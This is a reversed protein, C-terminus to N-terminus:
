KPKIEKQNIGKLFPLGILLWTGGDATLTPGKSINPSYDFPACEIWLIVASTIKIRKGPYNLSISLNECRLVHWDPRFPLLRFINWAVSVFSIFRSITLLFRIISPPWEFAFSHSLWGIAFSTISFSENADSYVTQQCEHSDHFDGLNDCSKVKQALRTKYWWIRKHQKTQQNVLTNYHAVNASAYIQIKRIFFLLFESLFRFKKTLVIFFFFIVSKLWQRFLLLWGDITIRITSCKKIEGNARRFWRYEWRFDKMWTKMSIEDIEGALHFLFLLPFLHFFFSFSFYEFNINEYLPDM